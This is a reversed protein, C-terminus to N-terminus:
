YNPTNLGLRVPDAVEGVLVWKGGQKSFSLVFREDYGVSRNDWKGLVVRYGFVVGTDNVVFFDPDHSIINLSKMSTYYVSLDHKWEEKSKELPVPSTADAQVYNDCLLSVITDVNGKMLAQMYTKYASKLSDIDEANVFFPSALLVLGILISKKM